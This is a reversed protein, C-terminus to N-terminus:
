QSATVSKSEKGLIYKKHKSDWGWWLSRAQTIESSNFGLTGEIKWLDQTEKPQRVSSAEAADLLQPQLKKVM